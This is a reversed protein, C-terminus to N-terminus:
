NNHEDYDSLEGQDVGGGVQHEKPQEEDEIRSKKKPPSVSRMDEQLAYVEEELASKKALLTAKMVKIEELKLMLKERQCQLSRLRTELNAKARERIDEQRQKMAQLKMKNRLRTRTNPRYKNRWERRRSQVQQNTMLDQKYLVQTLKYMLSEDKLAEMEKKTPRTFADYKHYNIGYQDWLQNIDEEQMEEYSRLIDLRKDEPCPIFILSQPPGAM